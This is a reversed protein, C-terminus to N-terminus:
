TERSSQLLCQPRLQQNTLRVSASPSERSSMGSHSLSDATTVSGPLRSDQGFLSSHRHRFLSCLGLARVSCYPRSTDPLCRILPTSPFSCSPPRREPHSSM